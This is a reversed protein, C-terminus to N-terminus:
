VLLKEEYLNKIEECVTWIRRRNVLGPIYGVGDRTYQSKEDLEAIKRSMEGELKRSTFPDIDRLEWLWPLEADLRATWSFRTAHMSGSAAKLALVSAVPLLQFIKDRLEYPLCNFIDSSTDSGDDKGVDVLGELYKSVEPIEVPNTVLVEEGKRCEWYQEYPPTPEGYDLPLSNSDNGVLGECLAFLVDGNIPTDKFCRVLIEQFCLEHFPFVPQFEEDGTWDCYTTFYHTGKEDPDVPVNPDDGRHVQIAGADDYYGRGTIFSKRDGSVGRNLGLARLHDLWELDSEGIVEGDYTYDTEDDSDISLRSSFTCGCIACYVDFGGM